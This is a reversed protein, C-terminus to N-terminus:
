FLFEPLPQFCKSSGEEELFLMSNAGAAVLTALLAHFVACHALDSCCLYVKPVIDVCTVLASVWGRQVTRSLSPVAIVQLGLAVM